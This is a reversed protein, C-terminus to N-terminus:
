LLSSSIHFPSYFCWVHCQKEYIQNFWEGDDNGNGWQERGCVITEKIAEGEM